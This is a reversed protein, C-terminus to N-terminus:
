KNSLERLENVRMRSYTLRKLLETQLTVFFLPSPLLIMVSKKYRFRKEEKLRCLSMPKVCDTWYYFLLQPKYVIKHM